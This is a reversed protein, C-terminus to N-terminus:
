GVPHHHTGQTDLHDHNKGKKVARKREVEIKVAQNYIGGFSIPFRQRTGELRIDATMGSRHVEVVVRRSKGRYRIEDSTIFALRSKRTDLANM